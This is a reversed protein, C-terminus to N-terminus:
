EKSEEEGYSVKLITLGIIIESGNRLERADKGRIDENDVITGNTSGLDEIFWKGDKFFIRAHKRSVYPDPIVIDNTPFRGLTYEGPKLLWSQQPIFFNSRVVELKLITEESM